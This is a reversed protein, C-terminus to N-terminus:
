DQKAKLESLAELKEEIEPLIFIKSEPGM